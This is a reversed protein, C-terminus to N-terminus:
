AAAAGPALIQATLLRVRRRQMKLRYEIERVRTRFSAEEWQAAIRRRTGAYWEDRLRSWEGLTAQFAEYERGMRERIAEFDPLHLARRRSELAAQARKFQMALRARQITVDPVRKLNRTVGVLSLGFILWKSPDWQWWRVGNRYDRDFIHHFNHYGEGYTLFALVPNDRATNSDTYPRSGWIHALSNIFFTTHHILVLRLLGALLLVGWADGALWGVALPLGVNTALALPLYYRHQWRVVPDQELDRGNSFDQRGSQWHRLMWGIHSYWFGRTAAYPDQGPQDVFQHHRRHDTAWILISNQLAMTGFVMYVLRLAWHAQYTRHAWLRHYGATISLGNAALFAALSVWAATSYGHALGYWPVLTLAALFTTAFMLTTVWNIPPLTRAPQDTM